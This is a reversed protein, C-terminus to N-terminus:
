NSEKKPPCVDEFTLWGETANDFEEPSVSLSM